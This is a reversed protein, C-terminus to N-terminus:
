TVPLDRFRRPGVVRKTALCRAIHLARFIRRCMRNDPVVMSWHPAGGLLAPSLDFLVPDAHLFVVMRRQPVHLEDPYRHVQPRAPESHHPQGGTRSARRFAFRSLGFARGLVDPLATSIARRVLPGLRCCEIRRTANDVADADLREPHHFRRRCPVRTRINSVLGSESCDVRQSCRQELRTASSRRTPFVNPFFSLIRRFSNGAGQLHRDLSATESFPSLLSFDGGDIKKAPRPRGPEM